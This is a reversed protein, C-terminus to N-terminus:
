AHHTSSPLSLFTYYRQQKRHALLHAASRGRTTNQMHKVEFIILGHVRSHQSIEELAITPSLRLRSQLHLPGYSRRVLPDGASHLTLQYAESTGATETCAPLHKKVHNHVLSERALTQIILDNAQQNFTRLLRLLNRDEM